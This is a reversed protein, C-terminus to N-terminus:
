DIIISSSVNNNDKRQQILERNRAVLSLVGEWPVPKYDTHEVCLNIYRPDQYLEDTFPDTDHVEQYHTHGHINLKGGYLSCPHIPFHSFILKHEPLVHVSAVDEFYPLFDHVKWIDHNGRLLKKRGNLRALIPLMNRRMVVDGLHWVLDKPGVMDNWNKIMTEDMEECTQFHRLPAGDNRKFNLINAHGFHTDSVFFTAGM